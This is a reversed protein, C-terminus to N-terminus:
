FIGLKKTPQVRSSKVLDLSYIKMIKRERGEIVGELIEM